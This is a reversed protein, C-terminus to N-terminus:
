FVDDICMKYTMNHLKISTKIMVVETGSECGGIIISIGVAHIFAFIFVIIKLDLSSDDNQTKVDHLYWKGGIVRNLHNSM